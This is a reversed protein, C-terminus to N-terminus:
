VLRPGLYDRPKDEVPEKDKEANGAAKAALAVGISLLQLTGPLSTTSTLAPPGDVFAFITVSAAIQKPAEAVFSLGPPKSNDGMKRVGKIRV